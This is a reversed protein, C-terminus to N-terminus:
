FVWLYLLSLSIAHLTQDLIVYVIAGFAQELPKKSEVRAAMGNLKMLCLALGYRDILWHPLFVLGYCTLSWFQENMLGMFTCVTTTYVLVHLTCWGAAKRGPLYKNTAMSQTQLVFDAIVHLCILVLIEM